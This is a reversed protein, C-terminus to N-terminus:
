HATLQRRVADPLSARKKAAYDYAVIVAEGTAAVRGANHSVLDIEMTFRDDSVDRVRVGATVHDPYFLPLRYRCSTSALIPGVATNSTFDIARFYEMRASEFWRFYVVNNVHQYSDMEGWQVPFTVRATTGRLARECAFRPDRKLRDFLSAKERRYEAMPRHDFARKLADYTARLTADQKFLERYVWQEDSDSGIVTVHVSAPIAHDDVVDFSQGDPPLYAGAYFRFSPSSSLAMVVAAFDERQVRLQLDVDGKTLAGPLATSGVHEVDVARSVAVDGIAGHIRAAVSDVRDAIVAEDISGVVFIDASSSATSTM